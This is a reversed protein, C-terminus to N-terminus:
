RALEISEIEITQSWDDYQGSIRVRQGAFPIPKEQDNLQFVTKTAPDYLVFSGDKACKLTCERADKAELKKMNTEHSGTTACKSDMIQGVITAFRQSGTRNWHAPMAIERSSSALILFVFIKLAMGKVQGGRVLLTWDRL